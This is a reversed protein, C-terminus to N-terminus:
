GGLAQRSPGAEAKQTREGATRRFEVSNAAAAGARRGASREPAHVEHETM